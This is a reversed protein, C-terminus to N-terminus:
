KGLVGNMREFSYCWFSYIPRYDKCCEIIHLSLHINPTIYEQGYNEEILRGVQHLQFHAEDLAENNIIRCVLLSCARVFNALIKQDAEDLLYWMIPTAYIM